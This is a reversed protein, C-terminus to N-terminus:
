VESSWMGRKAERAETEAELYPTLDFGKPLRGRYAIALGARGMELNINKGNV